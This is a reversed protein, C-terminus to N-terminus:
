PRREPPPTTDHGEAQIAAEIQALLAHEGVTARLTSDAAGLAVRCAVYWSAGRDHQHHAVAVLKELTDVQAM